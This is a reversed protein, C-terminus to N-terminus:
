LLQWIERKIARAVDAASQAADLVAVRAGPFVLEDLQRTRRAIVARDM